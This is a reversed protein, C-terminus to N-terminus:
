RQGGSSLTRDLGTKQLDSAFQSLDPKPQLASIVNNQSSQGAMGTQVAGQAFAPMAVSALIAAAMLAILMKVSKM